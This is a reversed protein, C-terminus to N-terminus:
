GLTKVGTKSDFEQGVGTGLGCGCESFCQKCLFGWKGGYLPVSADYFRNFRKLPQHCVDCPKTDAVDARASM